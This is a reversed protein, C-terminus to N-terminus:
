VHARGIQVQRRHEAGAQRCADCRCGQSYAGASPPGWANHTVDPHLKRPRYQYPQEPPMNQHAARRYRSPLGGWVHWTEGHDLAWQLCRAIQDCQQCIAVARRENAIPQEDHWWSASAKGEDVLQRCLGNIPATM